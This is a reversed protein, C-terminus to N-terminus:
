VSFNFGRLLETVQMRKKGQMQLDIIDVAGDSTKITLYNKNDTNFTGPKGTTVADSRVAWYIKFVKGEIETWAGPYPALGRIFDIVERTSKNWDIRCDERFIKPAVKMNGHWEQKKAVVEGNEIARVTKLVLAAGKEMLRAYLTGATDDPYIIEKEQFLIDGTDIEHKLFFTTLGTEKEGNMIARNIPAAGRYQPLLSAHLNFTGKPPMNWVVEPLMRFAVVIQLDAHLQKLEQLFQPSKLNVPQMIKLGASLAYEKVPSPTLKQGRGKPKDPATIVGVVNINNEVLIKLSPVAFDPTGMFVIRIGSNNSM